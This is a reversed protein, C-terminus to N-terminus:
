GLLANFKANELVFESEKVVVSKITSPFIDNWALIAAALALGNTPTTSNMWHPSVKTRATRYRTVSVWQYNIGYVSQMCAIFRIGIIM